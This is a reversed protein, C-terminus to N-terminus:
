LDLVVDSVAEFQPIVSTYLASRDYNFITSPGEETCDRSARLFEPRARNVWMPLDYYEILPESSPVSSNLSERLTFYSKNTPGLVYNQDGLISLGESCNGVTKSSEPSSGIDGKRSVRVAYSRYIGNGDLSALKAHTRRHLIHFFLRTGQLRDQFGEDVETSPTTLVAGTRSLSPHEVPVYNPPLMPPREEISGSIDYEFVYRSDRKLGTDNRVILAALRSISM